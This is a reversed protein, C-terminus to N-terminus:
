TINPRPTNADPKGKIYHAEYKGDQAQTRRRNHCYLDTDYQAKRGLIDALKAIDKRTGYFARSFLHRLNHPFVKKESVGAEQCLKKM